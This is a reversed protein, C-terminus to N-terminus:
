GRGQIESQFRGKPASWFGAPSSFRGTLAECSDSKTVPQHCSPQVEGTPEGCLEPTVAWPQQTEGVKKGHLGKGKGAQGQHQAQKTAAGNTDASGQGIGLEWTSGNAGPAGIRAELAAPNLSLPGQRILGIALGLPAEVLQIAAEVAGTLAPGVVLAQAAILLSPLTLPPAILLFPLKQHAALAEGGLQGSPRAQAESPKKPKRKGVDTEKESM